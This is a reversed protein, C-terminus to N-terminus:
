ESNVAIKGEQRIIRGDSSIGEVVVSYTTPFDATYFEFSAKGEPSILIDPKWFITTRYDPIASRRDQLTEYKPAYFEVPKQYGLPAFSAYNFSRVTSGGGGGERTTIGIAGNGGRMGFIAASAGKFIDISEVDEVNVMELPSFTDDWEMEVGDILVLPPGSNGRIRVEKGSVRVGAVSFLLDYISHAHRKEIDERYITADSSANAWHKLRVEDRKDVKKATVVVEPLNIVRMDDDYQARQEAKQMFVGSLTDAEPDDDEVASIHGLKPFTEPNMLLEVRDSGKKNKAQIFFKTSDPCDIGNFAFYGMSNTTLMGIMGNSSFMTIDGNEVPKGLLLSKVQGALYKTEEFAYEPYKRNGRIAEPIDYRRWGHTMMLLDLAFAAKPNDQLYLAPSDIHGKLESSLLLSSLITVATDTRIDRDDTVSVSLNGSLAVGKPDTVYLEANVKERKGYAPKGTSFAVTAGDETNKNFILRESLPNMDRDLLLIQVVGSPCRNKSFSLYEKEEDWSAFYLVIGRCHILLYLPQEPFDPSKNVTIFRIDGRSSTKLSCANQGQPLKFQKELGKGNRCKLFYTRDKEATMTFNGMGSYFTKVDCVFAGAEDVVTGTIDAATGNENLAKFAVICLEGEPLNGGEPYFSVDYDERAPKKKKRAGGRDGPLIKGIRINKQFFYGEGQNEMQRTYARLTYFGEPVAESLFIHGHYMGGAGQRIMVREVLSDSAGVLEAYVYRSGTPSQHSVADVVYAKFWIKEGPVYFNRDIHLHIKEQPYVSLQSNISDQISEISVQGSVGSMLVFFVSIFVIRKM